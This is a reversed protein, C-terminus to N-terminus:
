KNVNYLAKNTDHDGSSFDQSIVDDDSYEDDSAYDGYLYSQIEDLLATLEKNNYLSETFKDIDGTQTYEEFQTNIDFVKDDSPLKIDEVNGNNKKNDISFTGFKGDKTTIDITVNQTDASGKIKMVAKFKDSESNTLTVTGSVNENNKGSIKFNDYKITVTSSDIYEGSKKITIKGSNILADNKNYFDIKNKEGNVYININLTKENKNSASIYGIKESSSNNTINRGIIIGNQDVLIELTFKDKSNTDDKNKDVEDILNQIENNYEDDKCIGLAVVLKKLDKDSKM